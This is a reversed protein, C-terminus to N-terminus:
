MLTYQTVDVHTGLKAVYFPILFLVIIACFMAFFLLLRRL